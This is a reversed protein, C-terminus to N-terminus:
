DADDLAAAVRHHAQWIEEPLDAFQALHESRYKMEQKWRPTDITLITELDRPAIAVGDLDLEDKV